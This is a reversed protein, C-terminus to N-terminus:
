VDTFQNDSVSSKQFFRSNCLSELTSLMYNAATFLCLIGALTIGGAKM